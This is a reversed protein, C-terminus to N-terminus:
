KSRWGPMEKETAAVRRRWLDKETPDGYALGDLVKLVDDNSGKILNMAGPIAPFYDLDEHLCHIVTDTATMKERPTRARPYDKEFKLFGPMARGGHIRRKKYSNRYRRWTTEWGCARCTAMGAGNEVELSEECVPCLRDTVMRIARCRVMLTIGVEELLDEDVLGSAESAYLRVLKSPELAPAWRLEEPRQWGPKGTNSEGAM